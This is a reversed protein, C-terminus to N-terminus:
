GFEVAIGDVNITNKAKRSPGGYCIGVLEVDDFAALYLDPNENIRSIFDELSEEDLYECQFAHALPYEGRKIPRIQLNMKRHLGDDNM